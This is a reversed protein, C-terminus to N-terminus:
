ANLKIILKWCTSSCRVQFLKRLHPFLQHSLNGLVAWGSGKLSNMSLNGWWRGWAAFDWHQLGGANVNPKLLWLFMSFIRRCLLPVDIAKIYLPTCVVLWIRCCMSYKWRGYVWPAPLTSGLACILVKQRFVIRRSTVGVVTIGLCM